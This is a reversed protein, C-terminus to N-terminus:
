EESQNVAASQFLEGIAYFLMVAVGEPYEGIAFAGITALVMLTFETFFEGKSVALWGEKMVPWAVPIYAIVYWALRIPGTFFTLKLLNDVADWPAVYVFHVIVPLYIKLKGKGEDM